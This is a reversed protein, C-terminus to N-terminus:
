PPDYYFLTKAGKADKRSFILYYDDLGQSSQTEAYLCVPGGRYGRHEETTFYAGCNRCNM